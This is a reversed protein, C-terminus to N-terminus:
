KKLGETKVSTIEDVKSPRKLLKQLEGDNKWLVWYAYGMYAGLVGSIVAIVILIIRIIAINIVVSLTCSIGFLLLFVVIIKRPVWNGYDPKDIHKVRNSGM